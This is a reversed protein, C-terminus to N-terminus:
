VKGSRLLQDSFEHGIEHIIVEKRHARSLNYFKDGVRIDDLSFYQAESNINKDYTVFSPLDGDENLYNYLNLNKVENIRYGM